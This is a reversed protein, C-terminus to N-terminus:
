FSDKQTKKPYCYADAYNELNPDRQLDGFITLCGIYSPGLLSGLELVVWVRKRARTEFQAVEYCGLKLIECSM